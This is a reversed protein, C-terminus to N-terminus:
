WCVALHCQKLRSNVRYSVGSVLLKNPSFVTQSLKFILVPFVIAKQLLFVKFKSIYAISGKLAKPTFCVLFCDSKTQHKILFM